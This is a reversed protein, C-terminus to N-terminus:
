SDFFIQEFNCSYFILLRQEVAVFNTAVYLLDSILNIVCAELKSMYEM